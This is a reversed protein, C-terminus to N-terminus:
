TSLINNKPTFCRTVPAASDLSHTLAPILQTQTGKALPTSIAVSVM